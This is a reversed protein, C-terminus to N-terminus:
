NGDNGGIIPLSVVSATRLRDAEARLAAYNDSGVHRGMPCRWGAKMNKHWLAALHTRPCSCEGCHREEVIGAKTQRLFRVSCPNGKADRWTECVLHRAEAVEITVKASLVMRILSWGRPILLDAWALFRVVRRPTTIQREIWGPTRQKSCGSCGGLETFGFLKEFWSRSWEFREKPTPPPPPEVAVAQGNGDDAAARM